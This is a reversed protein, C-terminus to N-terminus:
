LPCDLKSKKYLAKLILAFYPYHRNECGRICIKGDSKVFDITEEIFGKLSTLKSHQKRYYSNKDNMEREIWDCTTNCHNIFESYYMDECSIAFDYTSLTKHFDKAM